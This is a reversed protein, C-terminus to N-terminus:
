GKVTVATVLRCARHRLVAIRGVISGGAVVPMQRFVRVFEAAPRPGCRECLVLAPADSM